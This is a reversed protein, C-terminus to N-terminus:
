RVMLSASAATIALRLSNNVWLSRSRVHSGCTAEHSLALVARGCLHETGLKLAFAPYQLPMDSVGDPSPTNSGSFTLGADTFLLLYMM